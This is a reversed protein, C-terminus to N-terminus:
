GVVGSRVAATPSPRTPRSRTAKELARSMAVKLEDFGWTPGTPGVRVVYAGIPLSPAEELMIARLRRRLRNRAVANGVRRNIAYAVQLESWCKREWYSVSIPGSRGRMSTHRLEEFTARSRIPGVAGRRRPDAAPGSTVGVTSSAGEGPAVPDGGPGGQDVDAQPVRPDEGAETREASLHAEDM